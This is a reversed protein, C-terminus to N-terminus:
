ERPRFGEGETNSLWVGRRRDRALLEDCRRRSCATSCGGYHLDEEEGAAAAAFGAVVLGAVTAERDAM